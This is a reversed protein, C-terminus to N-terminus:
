SSEARGAPRRNRSPLGDLKASIRDTLVQKSGTARVGLSRAFGALEDKLWYWRRFEAGSLRDTLPPREDDENTVRHSYKV